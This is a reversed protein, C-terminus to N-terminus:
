SKTSKASTIKEQSMARHVAKVALSEEVDPRASLLADVADQFQRTPKRGKSRSETIAQLVIRRLNGNTLLDRQAEEVSRIPRNLYPSVPDSDKM